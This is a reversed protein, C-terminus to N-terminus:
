DIEVRDKAEIIEDWSLNLQAAVDGLTRTAVAGQRELVAQVLLEDQAEQLTEEFVAKYKLLEVLYDVDVLAGQADKSKSNQVIFIEESKVGSFSNLIETLKTTRTVDSINLVNKRIFDLTHVINQTENKTLPIGERRPARLVEHTITLSM